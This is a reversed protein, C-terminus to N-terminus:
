NVLLPPANNVFFFFDYGFFAIRRIGTLTNKVRRQINKGALAIV